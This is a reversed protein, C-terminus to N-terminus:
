CEIITINIFDSNNYKQGVSTAMIKGAGHMRPRNTSLHILHDCAQKHINKTKSKFVPYLYLCHHM